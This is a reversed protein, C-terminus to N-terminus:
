KRKRPRTDEIMGLEMGKERLARQRCAGRMWGSLTEGLAQASAEFVLREEATLLMQLRNTRLSNTKM